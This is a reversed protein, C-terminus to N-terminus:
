LLLGPLVICVQIRQGIKGREDRNDRMTCGHCDGGKLASIVTFPSRGGIPDLVRMFAIPGSPNPPPMHPRRWLGKAPAAAAGFQGEAAHAITLLPLGLVKLVIDGASLRRM